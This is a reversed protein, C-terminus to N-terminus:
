RKMRKAPIGVYTGPGIDRSVYALAGIVTDPAIKFGPGPRFDLAVVCGMGGVMEDRWRGLM